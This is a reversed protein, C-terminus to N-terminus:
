SITHDVPPSKYLGKSKARVPWGQSNYLPFTALQMPMKTGCCADNHINLNGSLIFTFCHSSLVPCARLTEPLQSDWIELCDACSSSLTTLAVCRSGKGRLFYKQYDNRNSTSDVGPDYHPRFTGSSIFWANSSSSVVEMRIKYKELVSDTIM